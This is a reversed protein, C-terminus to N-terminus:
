IAMESLPGATTRGRVAEWKEQLPRWNFRPVEGCPDTTGCVGQTVITTMASSVAAAAPEHRRQEVRGVQGQDPLGAVGQGAQREHERALRARDRDVAGRREVGALHELPDRGVPRPRENDGHGVVRQEAVVDNRQLLAAQRPALRM